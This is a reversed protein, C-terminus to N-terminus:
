YHTKNLEAEAEWYPPNVKQIAWLELPQPPPETSLTYAKYVCPGSDFGLVCACVCVNVSVYIYVCFCMCWCVYRCVDCVCVFVYM